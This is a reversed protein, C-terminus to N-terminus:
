SKKSEKSSAAASQATEKGGAAAAAGEEEEAPKKGKSIVEPEAPTAAQVGAVGEAGAPVAAEEKKPAVVNVVMAHADAQYEVGSIKPLEGVTIGKGIELASIDVEIYSPIDKPLCKVKIERLFHELIGGHLKVGPAEGKLKVPVSVEIKSSMSVVQFDVHIPKRSVVDIQVDKVIAKKSITNKDGDSIALNFITNGLSINHIARTFGKADIFGIINKEGKGYIVAPIVGQALRSKKLESKKTVSRVTVNLNLDQQM